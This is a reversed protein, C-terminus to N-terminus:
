FMNIKSQSALSFDGLLITSLDFKGQSETLKKKKKTHNSAVVSVMNIVAVTFIGINILWVSSYISHTNM